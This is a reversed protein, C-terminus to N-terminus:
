RKKEKESSGNGKTDNEACRSFRNQKIPNQKECKVENRQSLCALYDLLIKKIEEWSEAGYRVDATRNHPRRALVACVGLEQARLCIEPNDDILVSVNHEACYAGKEWREAVIDDFPIEHETLWARTVAAPDGFWDSMRATLIIVEHGAAKFAALAERAGERAQAETFAALGGGCRMYEDVDAKQWDYMKVFFNTDRDVLRFPLGKRAIYESARGFRDVVNLTDDVDIAIRM